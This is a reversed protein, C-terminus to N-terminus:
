RSDLSGGAYWEDIAQDTSLESAGGHGSIRVAGRYTCYLERLLPRIEERREKADALMAAAFDAFRVIRPPVSEFAAFMSPQRRGQEVCFPHGCRLLGVAVRHGNEAACQVWAVAEDMDFGFGYDCIGLIGLRFQAGAHGHEAALRYWFEAEKTDRHLEDAESICGLWYCGDPDREHCKWYWRQAKMEAELEDMARDILHDYGGNLLAYCGYTARDHGRNAAAEFWEFARDFVTDQREDTYANGDLCMRAMLFCAASHGQHSLIMFELEADEYHGRRYAQLGADIRRDLFRRAADSGGKAALECYWVALEVNDHVDRGDQAEALYVMALAFQAASHGGEAAAEFWEMAEDPGSVVCSQLGRAYLYDPHEQLTDSDLLCPEEIPFGAIHVDNLDLMVDPDLGEWEVLLSQKWEAISPPRDSLRVSLATDIMTLLSAGYTWSALKRARPMQDHVQRERPDTPPRGTVCRYLVAACSYIDTEASQPSGQVLQELAAYSPTFVATAEGAAARAQSRASGFDVLVGTGDPVLLINAPKIDRHLLGEGHVAELGDLIPLVHKRIEPESLTGQRKLTTSLPEGDIYEMAIYGTRNEEAYAYVAVINQHRIRALVRAEDRTAELGWAVDAEHGDRPVVNWGADRIAWDRPFYEKLAVKRGLREDVALYTIGFGGRGLEREVRFDRVTHGPPLGDSHHDRM